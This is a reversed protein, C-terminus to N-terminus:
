TSLATMDKNVILSQNSVPISEVSPTLLQKCRRERREGGGERGVMIDFDVTLVKEAEVYHRM